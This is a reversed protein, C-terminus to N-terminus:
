HWGIEKLENYYWVIGMTHGNDLAKKAESIMNELFFVPWKHINEDWTQPDHKVAAISIEVRKIEAELADLINM